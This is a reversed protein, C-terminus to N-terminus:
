LGVDHQLYECMASAPHIGVDLQRDIQEILSLIPVSEARSFLPKLKCLMRLRQHLCARDAISCEPLRAYEGLLRDRRAALLRALARREDELIRLHEAQEFRIAKELGVINANLEKIRGLLENRLSARDEVTLHDLERNPIERDSSVLLRLLAESEALRDKLTRLSQQKKVFEEPKDPPIELKLRAIEQEAMDLADRLRLLDDPAGPAIYQLTTERVGRYLEAPEPPGADLRRESCILVGLVAPFILSLNRCRRQLGIM